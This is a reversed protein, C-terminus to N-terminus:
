LLASIMMALGFIGVGWIGSRVYRLGLYYAPIYVIRAWFFVEAGLAVRANAPDVAHAVLAIAAFLLFNVLTNDATREARGAFATTEIAADRNGFAYQMGALSWARSKIVSAAMILVWTLIAMYVVLKLTPTM